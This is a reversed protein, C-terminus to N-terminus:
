PNPQIKPGSKNWKNKPGIIKAPFLARLPPYTKSNIKTIICFHLKETFSARSFPSISPRAYVESQFPEADELTFKNQKGNENLLYKLTRLSEIQCISSANSSSNPQVLHSIQAYSDDHSSPNALEITNQPTDTKERDNPKQNHVKKKTHVTNNLSRRLKQLPQLTEADTDLPRNAMGTEHIFQYSQKNTIHSEM